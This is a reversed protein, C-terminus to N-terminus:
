MQPNYNWMWLANQQLNLAVSEGRIVTVPFSAAGYGDRQLQAGAHHIPEAHSPKVPLFSLTAVLFTVNARSPNLFDNNASTKFIRLHSLQFHILPSTRLSISSLTGHIRHDRCACCPLIIVNKFPVLCVRCREVGAQDMKQKKEGNSEKDRSEWETVQRVKCMEM